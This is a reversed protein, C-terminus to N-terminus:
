RSSRSGSPTSSSAPRTRRTGSRSSSSSTSRCTASRRARWASTRGSATPSGRCTTPRASTSTRRRRHRLRADVHRREDELDEEVRAARARAHQPLRLQRRREAADDQRPARRPRRVADDARPAHDDRRGAVQHRRRHDPVGAEEFRKQWYPERAIFVPMCNVMAVGAELIQEAYWKTAAESGVPLYNVVVDTGTEKLIKSSTTRRARAGERRGALPVQRHRRADHRALGQRRDEPRGRVQDHREPHAWIADALDVGVKGKVVDFAATFEIDSIHYGGLDVHMLGPVSDEPKADKYYEVGQLLSNACNGVGIIAVRVKDKARAGNKSGNTSAM